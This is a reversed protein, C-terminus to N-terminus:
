EELAYVVASVRYSGGEAIEDVAYGFTHSSAERQRVELEWVKPPSLSGPCWGARPARVSQPAGTPNEKCYMVDSPGATLTCLEDCDERLLSFSGLKKGDFTTAHARECFEEAPGFCADSNGGGHGTSRLELRLKRTAAPLELPADFARESETLNGNFLPTVSLVKRPAPGRVLEVRASVNWGGHSGSVQGAADSWTAIFVRLEHKGPRANLLDTLDQEVHLPGGFPTIARFLEFAPPGDKSKPEDMTLEFNRDFADCRPPYSQGEPPPDDRAQEFPFCTSRLDVILRVEAFPAAGFDVAVDAAQFHEDEAISSIRVDDFLPLVETEGSFTPSADLAADAKPEIASSDSCAMAICWVWM